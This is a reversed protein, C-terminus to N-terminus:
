ASGNDRDTLPRIWVNRFRVPSGHDQLFLPKKYLPKAPVDSNTPGYITANDQILVGNHLVTLTGREVLNGIEDFRPARFIIDYTQWEGPKRSANVFPPHQVYVAGCQTEPRSPREYSNIIQVEYREHLKIGSNGNKRDAATDAPIAFELHLQADGFKQKTSIDGTGNVVLEGNEVIWKAPGGNKRNHWQALDSEKGGFLVIADSPIPGSADVVRPIPADLKDASTGPLAFYATTTLVTLLSLRLRRWHSFM